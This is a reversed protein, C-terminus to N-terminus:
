ETSVNDTVEVWRREVKIRKGDTREIWAEKIKYGYHDAWISFQNLAKEKTVVSDYTFLKEGDETTAKPWYWVDKEEPREAQEHLLQCMFEMEDAAEELLNALGAYFNRSQPDEGRSLGYIYDREPKLAEDIFQRIKKGSRVQVAEGRINRFVSAPGMWVSRDDWYEDAGVKRCDNGYLDIRFQPNENIADFELGWGRCAEVAADLEAGARCTWLILCAGNRRLRKAQEIVDENPKGIEPYDDQCLCGDFDIAIVPTRWDFQREKM